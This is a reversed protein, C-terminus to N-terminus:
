SKVEIPMTAEDGTVRVSREDPTPDPGRMIRASRAGGLIPSAQSAEIAAENTEEDLSITFITGDFGVTKLLPGKEGPGEECGPVILAAGSDHELQVRIPHSTGLGRISLRLGDGLYLRESM